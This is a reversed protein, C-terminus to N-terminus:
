KEAAAEAASRKPPAFVLNVAGTGLTVPQGVIVNEAVGDLYDVEGTVAARLLHHATIEFAARALVSSKRGSIGHRGIAKVDGDNTMMDSVLMIHRLDVTLGQESLTDSAEKMIANRAAEIGLVEYIEMINNTSTKTPDVYPLELIAALNSGETYIVYRDQRRRIIARKIGDIGKIRTERLVEVMRQLRKFSPQDAELVFAEVKETTGDSRTRTITEKKLKKLARGFDDWTVGKTRMRHENPLVMARMNIIDTEVDAIDALSTIEIESAYRKITELDPDKRLHIEMIPTSPVRRADVIEILRPLGLTVNMEAVGAYHFTRMTNHTVIGEGTVFTELGPVSLDYVPRVPIGVEEIETIEDWVVDEDCLARLRQIERQSDAGLERARSELLSIYRELISRNVHGGRALSRGYRSPLGLIEALGQFLDTFGNSVDVAEDPHGGEQLSCLRDLLRRKRESEFGVTEQFKRAYIDPIWLTHLRGERRIAALIGFRVLLLAVDNVLERSNSRAFIARRAVTVNGDGEFFARLLAAVSADSASFFIDPVRREGSTSRTITRLIVPIMSTSPALEGKSGLWNWDRLRAPPSPTGHNSVRPFSDTAWGESLCAGLLWGLSTSISLRMDLHGGGDECNGTSGGWRGANLGIPGAPAELPDSGPPIPGDARPWFGSPAGHQGPDPGGPYGDVPLIESLDVAAVVPEVPLRRVVPVRNGKRLQRGSVPVLRGDVRIVFSHNPTATIARGTRTHIRILPANYRHRSVAQVARWVVKGEETLSPVELSTDAPLDCWETPGEKSPPRSAMLDDVLGGIPVVRIRGCQRVLVEEDYPLSMQTGPEGISQASVIGCSENPDILHNDYRDAVKLLIEELRKRSVKVGELRKAIEQVVSYPLRRRLERLIAILAEETESPQPVKDEPLKPPERPVEPAKAKKGRGKTSPRTRSPM